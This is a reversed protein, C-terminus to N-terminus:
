RGASPLAGRLKTRTTRSSCSPLRRATKRFSCTADTACCGMHGESTYAPKSLSMECQKSCCHCSFTGLPFMVDMDVVEVGFAFRDNDEGLDSSIVSRKTLIMGGTFKLNKTM